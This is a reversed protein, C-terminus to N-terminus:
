LMEGVYAPIFEEAAKIDEAEIEPCGDLTGHRLAHLAVARASVATYGSERLWLWLRRCWDPTDGIWEPLNALM